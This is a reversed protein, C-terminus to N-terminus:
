RVVVMEAVQLKSRVEDGDDRRGGTVPWCDGTVPSRGPRTPSTATLNM